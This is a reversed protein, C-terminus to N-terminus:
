AHPKGGTGWQKAPIGEVIVHTEGRIKETTCEVVADTVKQILKPVTEENIRTDYLKVEILPM